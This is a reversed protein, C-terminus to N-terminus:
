IWPESEVRHIPNHGARYRGTTLTHRDGEVLKLNGEGDPLGHRGAREPVRRPIAEDDAQRSRAPARGGSVSVREQRYNRWLAPSQPTRHDPRTPTRIVGAAAACPLHPSSQELSM